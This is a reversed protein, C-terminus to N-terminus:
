RQFIPLNAYPLQLVVLAISTAYVDGYPGKWTGDSSQLKVLDDRVAPYCRKWRAESSLYMAQSMYFTTYYKNGGSGAVYNTPGFKKDLFKLAKLAVPNDYKGAHYMTAVAAATVAPRSTGRSQASYCIGGDPNSCYELYKGAKDIVSKPVSIGANNCARLGQVQAVTVSGEDRSKTPTYLWGGANSQSKVTLEIAKTLTRRIERQRSADVGMGYVEGLFLMAFGHGHMCHGRERPEAILGDSNKRAVKLLRDTARRVHMAYKGEYPTNGGALLALGALSTMATPYSQAGWGGDKQQTRALQALGRQIARETAANVMEPRQSRTLTLQASASSTQCALVAFAIAFILERHRYKLQYISM